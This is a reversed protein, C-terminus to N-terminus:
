VHARGIQNPLPKYPLSEWTKRGMIICNRKNSVSDTTVKRFNRMEEPINWPIKNDMGIGYETTTAVIIATEKM